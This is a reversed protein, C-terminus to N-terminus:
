ASSEVADPGYFDLELSIHLGALGNLIKWDLADGSNWGSYWGVFFSAEVGQEHLQVLYDTYPRLRETAMTLGTPLDTGDKSIPICCYSERRPPRQEGKSSIWPDGKKSLATAAM